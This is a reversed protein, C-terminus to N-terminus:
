AAGAQASEGPLFLAQLDNLFRRGHATPHFRDGEHALLGRTLAESLGPEAATLDLGTCASFQERRFGANLRLANLMFEFARDAGAVAAESAVAAASGAAQMYRTPHRLKARRVICDSKAETLKGHAGAGIGLYDGYRWYNLNHRCARGTQMYASVEYQVFGAQALAAQCEEQM